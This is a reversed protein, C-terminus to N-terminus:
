KKCRNVFYGELVNYFFRLFLSRQSTRVSKQANYLVYSSLNHIFHASIPQHSQVKLKFPAKALKWRISLLEAM